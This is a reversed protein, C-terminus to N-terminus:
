DRPPVAGSSNTRRRSAVRAPRGRTLSNDAIIAAAIQEKLEEPYAGRLMAVLTARADEVLSGWFAAIFVQESPNASFFADSKSCMKEYLAGAMKHATEKVLFHCHPQNNSLTEIKPQM